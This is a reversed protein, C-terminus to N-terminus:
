GELTEQPLNRFIKIMGMGSIRLWGLFGLRRGCIGCRQKVRVTNSSTPQAVLVRRDSRSQADGPVAFPENVEFPRVLLDLAMFDPLPNGM